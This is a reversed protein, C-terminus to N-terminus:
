LYLLEKNHLAKKMERQRKRRFTKAHPQAVSGSDALFDFALIALLNLITSIYIHQFLLV